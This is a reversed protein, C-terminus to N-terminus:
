GGRQWDLIAKIPYILMIINLTLNDRVTVLLGAEILIILAVCTRVRFRNAILFGIMMLCVDSLSNLVSDGVYGLSITM